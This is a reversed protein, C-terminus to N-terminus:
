SSRPALIRRGRPADQPPAPHAAPPGFACALAVPGAGPGSWPPRRWRLAGWTGARGGPGARVRWPAGALGTGRAKVCAEQVTWIRAFALAAREPPLSALRAATGPACCRRLLAASPERPVQVDVGVDLGAAVAAAAYPGSHSVSVGTDPSGPLRPRGAPEPVVPACADEEGAVEALLLRLLARGALHERARWGAMGAAARYEEPRLRRVAGPTGLVTDAPALAVVVGPAPAWLRVGPAGPPGAAEAPPRRRAPLAVASPLPVTEPM